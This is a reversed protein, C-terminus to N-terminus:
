RLQPSLSGPFTPIGPASTRMKEKVSRALKEIEAVKRLQVPTLSDPNTRSVEDDLERALKLLKNTDSVLSKQRENNYARLQRAREVPDNSPLNALSRVRYDDPTEGFVPAGPAMRVQARGPLALALLLLALGLARLGRHISPCSETWSKCSPQPEHTASSAQFQNQAQIM